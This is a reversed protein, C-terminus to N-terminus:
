VVVVREHIKWNARNIEALRNISICAWHDQPSVEGLKMNLKKVANEAVKLTVAQPVDSKPKRKYEIIVGNHFHAVIFSKM